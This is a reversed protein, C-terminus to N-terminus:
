NEPPIRWRAMIAIASAQSGLSRIASSGVVASSTVMWACIRSQQSREHGLPPRRQDQDRVVQAHDRSQARADVHHVAPHEHLPPRGLVDELPRPMRVREPRSSLTGRSSVRSADREARDHASRAVHQAEGAGARELRAAAELDLLRPLLHGLQTSISGPWKTAQKLGTGASSHCRSDCPPPPNLRLLFVLAVQDLDLVELDVERDLAADHEVAVDAVDLGHVVDRELDAVALRQAQHALRAAALRRDAPRQQAQVLGRGAPDDEVSLVDRSRPASPIRVSLRRMCITKWSGNAESLGRWLMERMMPSGSRTCPSAPRRAAPRRAASSSSITPRGRVRGAAVRVLEGAALALADAQGPRQGQVGVEDHRVLRDRREVDRDLRLDDVQELLQLLLEREGVQEDRVVEGDDAVDGVADGHHVQARDDLDRRGASSYAFGSCGYVIESSDATGIGSGSTSRARM